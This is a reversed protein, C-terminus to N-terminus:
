GGAARAKAIAELDKGWLLSVSASGVYIQNFSSDSPNIQQINEKSTYFAKVLDLRAVPSSCEIVAVVTGENPDVTYGTTDVVGRYAIVLDSANLFPSGPPVSEIVNSTTNYFGIYTTVSCGVLSSYLLEQKEFEPDVYGIKYTERDVASSQRPAEIIQLGSGSTFTGVGPVEITSDADTDSFLIESGRKILVLKFLAINDLALMQKVVNSFKRM